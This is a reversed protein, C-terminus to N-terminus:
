CTGPFHGNQGKIQGQGRVQFHSLSVPNACTPERAKVQIQKLPIIYTSSDGSFTHYMSMIQIGSHTWKLNQLFIIYTQFMSYRLDFKHLLDPERKRNDVIIVSSNQASHVFVTTDIITNVHHSLLTASKSPVHRINLGHTQQPEAVSIDVM